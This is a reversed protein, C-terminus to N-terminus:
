IFSTIEKKTIESYGVVMPSGNWLTPYIKLTERFVLKSYCSVIIQELASIMM